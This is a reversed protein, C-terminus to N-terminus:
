PDYDKSLKKPQENNKSAVKKKASQKTKKLNEKKFSVIKSDEINNATEKDHDVGNISEFEMDDAVDIPIIDDNQSEGDNHSGDNYTDRTAGTYLEERTRRSSRRRSKETFITDEIEKIRVTISTNDNIEDIEYIYKVGSSGETTSNTENQTIQNIKKLRKRRLQEDSQICQERFFHYAKLQSVCTSCLLSSLGDDHSITLTTLEHFLEAFNECFLPQLTHNVNTSMCGRCLEFPFEM